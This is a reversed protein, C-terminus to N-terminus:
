TLNRIAAAVKFHKLGKTQVGLEKAPQLPAKAALVAQTLVTRLASISCVPCLSNSVAVDAM